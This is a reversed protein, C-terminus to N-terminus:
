PLRHHIWWFSAGVLMLAAGIFLATEAGQLAWYHSAPQYTAVEHYRAAVKAVCSHFSHQVSGPVLNTQSGRAGPPPALNGCASGLFAKTPAQGVSDALRTSLVWAGPIGGPPLLLSTGSPSQAIGVSHGLSLAAHAVPALHGRLWFQVAMRAAIFVALTVAMAPLTRRLLTGATLGVALAFVAYGIPVIGREAFM